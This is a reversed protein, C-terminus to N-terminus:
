PDNGVGYNSAIPILDLINIVNDRNLDAYPKWHADGPKSGFARAAIMLDDLNVTGDKSLDGKLPQYRYLGQVSDHSIIIGRNTVLQTFGFSIVSEIPGEPWIVAHTVRLTIRALIGTGNAPPAPYDSEVRVVIIGQTDDIIKKPVRYPEKIFTAIEVEITDLLTTNYRLEFEFSYLNVVDSITVNITFTDGLKKAVYMFPQVELKPKTSYCSFWGDYVAHYISNGEPDGLVTDSLDLASTVNEPYIPDYVIKFTLTALVSDGNFPPAPSQATAAFWFRGLDKRTENMAIFCPGWPLVMYVNVLDLQTVNWYLKFEYGYLGTVNTVTVNVKFMKDYAPTWHEIRAPDVCLGPVWVAPPHPQKLWPKFDVNDSVADGTGPGARSPGSANGWWNYRADLVGTGGNFVGYYINGVINNFNVHVDTVTVEAEIHIGSDAALNNQITNGTITAGTISSVLHIGHQWNSINNNSVVATISGAPSYEPIDGIYIGDGLGGTLQNDNITVTLSADAHYTAAGIGWTDSGGVTNNVFSATWSGEKTYQVHIGIKGGTVTNGQASGNGDQFIVGIQCNTISNNEASGNSDLFMIGVSWWTEPAYVHNSITNRNVTGVAGGMIVIGNQVEDGSPLSGRGTVTNDHINVTLKNGHADIGNKDYNTLTSGKVEVSVTNSIASLYIGYGRVATGTTGVTIGTVTVSDITGSTERYFIGAVYDAGAPKATVSEGDVKLSKVKVSSGAAVNAVIIGAIQRTESGWHGNLITTLKAASSPKVIATDGTGQLTLSKGIVVQEDYTGDHVHVTGGKAVADIADQITAFADKGFMHGDVAEGGHWGELAVRAWPSTTNWDDNAWIESKPEFNYTFGNITLDDVYATMPSTMNPIFGYQICCHLVEYNSYNAVINLHWATLNQTVHGLGLFVGLDTGDAFWGIWHGPYAPNANMWGTGTVNMRPGWGDPSTAHMVVLRGHATDNGLDVVVAAYPSHLNGDEYLLDGYVKFSLTYADIADLTTNLFEVGTKLGQDYRDVETWPIHMKVSYNGDIIQETSFSIWSGAPLNREVVFPTVTVTATPSARTLKVPVVSLLMCILLLLVM